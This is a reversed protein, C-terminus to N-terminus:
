QTVKIGWKKSLYLEIAKREENKLPRDYIIVEGFDGGFTRPATAHNGIVLTNDGADYAGTNTANASGANVGNLHLNTVNAVPNYTRVFITPSNKNLTYDIRDVESGSYNYIASSGDDSLTTETGAVAGLSIFTSGQANTGTWNMVIFITGAYNLGKQVVGSLRQTDNTPDFRVSPLGNLGNNIYTPQDAQTAQVISTKGLTVISSNNWASVTDNNELDTVGDQNAITSESTSDLWFVLDKISTVPASQTLTRATSLKFARVLRSSQTIGAIIIGIILIVISLEILSFAAKSKLPTIKQM